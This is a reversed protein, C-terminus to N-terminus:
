EEEEKAEKTKAKTGSPTQAKKKDDSGSGGTTQQPGREGPRNANAAIAGAEAIDKQVDSAMRGTPLPPDYGLDNRVEEASKLDATFLSIERLYSKEITDPPLFKMSPISRWDTKSFPWTGMGLIRPFFQTRSEAEIFRQLEMIMRNFAELAMESGAQGSSVNGGMILEPVGLGAFVDNRLFQIFPEMDMVKLGADLVSWDVVGSVSIDDAIALATVSDHFENVMRKSPPREPTGIRWIIKPSGYRKIIASVDGMVGIYTTLVDKVPEIPSIGYEASPLQNWKLHLIQDKDFVVAGPYKEKVEDKWHKQKQGSSKKSGVRRRTLKAGGWKWRRSKPRQIYGIIEGTEYRYVKMTSPNLPKLESIGWGLNHGDDSKKLNSEMVIEIFVNGWIMINRVAEHLFTHFGIYDIWEKIADVKKQDNGQVRFGAQMVHDATKNVAQFILPSKFYLKEYTEMNFQHPVGQSRDSPRPSGVVARGGEEFRQRASTAVSQDSAWLEAESPIDPHETVYMINSAFPREEEVTL